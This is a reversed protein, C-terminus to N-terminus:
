NSLYFKIESMFAVPWILCLHCSYRFFNYICTLTLVFGSGVTSIGQESQRRRLVEKPDYGNCVIISLQDPSSRLAKVAELHSAGLLSVGNVELIRHGVQLQGDREAAGGDTIQATMLYPCPLSHIYIYIYIHLRTNTCVSSVSISIDVISQITM